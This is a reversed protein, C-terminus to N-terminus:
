RRPKPRPPTKPKSPPKRPHSKMPAPRWNPNNRAWIQDSVKRIWVDHSACESAQAKEYHRLYRNCYKLKNRRLVQIQLDLDILKASEMKVCSARFNPASWFKQGRESKKCTEELSKYTEDFTKQKDSSPPSASADHQVAQVPASADPAKKVATKLSTAIVVADTPAQIQSTPIRPKDKPIRALFWGTGIGAVFGILSLIVLFGYNKKASPKDAAAGDPGLVTDHPEESVANVVAMEATPRRCAEGEYVYYSILGKLAGVVEWMGTYRRERDPDVCLAVVARAAPPLIALRDRVKDRDQIFAMIEHVMKYSGDRDITAYFNEGTLIEFLMMGIAFIDVRKDVNEPDFLQEPACYLPTGMGSSATTISAGRQVRALGWDMVVPGLDMAHMDTVQVNSPKLDRHLVQMAHAAGLTNAVKILLNLLQRRIEPRRVDDHFIALYDELHQGSLLEMIIAPPSEVLHYILGINTLKSDTLRMQARAETLFRKTVEESAPQPLFKIAVFKELTPHFAKYVAGMGGEGLKELIRYGAVLQGIMPDQFADNTM